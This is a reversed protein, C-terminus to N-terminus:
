YIPSNVVTFVFCFCSLLLMAFNSLSYLLISFYNSLLQFLKSGDGKLEALSQVVSLGYLRDLQAAQNKRLAEVIAQCALQQAAQYVLLYLFEFCIINYIIYLRSVSVSTPSSFQLYKFLWNSADSGNANSVGAAALYRLVARRLCEFGLM